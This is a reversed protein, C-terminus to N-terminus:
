CIIKLVLTCVNMKTKKGYYKNLTWFELLDLPSDLTYVIHLLPLVICILEIYHSMFIFVTLIVMNNYDMYLSIMSIILIVYLFLVPKILSRLM